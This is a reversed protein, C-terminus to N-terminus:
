YRRAVYSLHWGLDVALVLSQLGSTRTFTVNEQASSHVVDSSTGRHLLAGGM